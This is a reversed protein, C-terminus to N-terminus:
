GHVRTAEQQGEEGEPCGAGGKPGPHERCVFRRGLPSSPLIGDALPLSRGM